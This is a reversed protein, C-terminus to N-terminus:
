PEGPTTRPDVYYRKVAWLATGVVLCLLGVPLWLAGFLVALAPVLLSAGLLALSRPHM